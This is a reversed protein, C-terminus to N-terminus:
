PGSRLALRLSAVSDRAVVQLRLSARPIETLLPRIEIMSEAWRTSVIIIQDPTGVFSM